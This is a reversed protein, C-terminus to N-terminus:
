EVNKRLLIFLLFAGGLIRTVVGVAIEQPEAITRAVTDGLTLVLAGFIGSCWLAQTSEKVFGAVLIPVAMAVFAVPGGIATGSAALLALMFVAVIRVWQVHIGLGAAVDPPLRMVDLRRMLYIQIPLTSLLVFVVPLSTSYGQGVFSGHMWIYINQVEHLAGTSMMFEIIARLFEGLCIGSILLVPGEVRGAACVAYLLFVAGLAGLPAIWFPWSATATMLVLCVIALTAGENIGLVDPTALRNRFVTQALSGALGLSCGAVAAAFARPLRIERVILQTLEDGHGIISAWLASWGIMQDGVSVAVVVGMMLLLMLGIALKTSRRDILFSWSGFRLWWKEAPVHMHADSM